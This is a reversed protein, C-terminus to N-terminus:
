FMNNRSCLPKLKREHVPDTAIGPFGPLGCTLRDRRQGSQPLRKVASGPGAPSLERQGSQLLIPRTSTVTSGVGLGPWGLVNGTPFSTDLPLDRRFGVAAAFGGGGGGGSSGGTGVAGGAGGGGWGAGRGVWRGGSPGPRATRIRSTRVAIATPAPTVQHTSLWTGLGSVWEGGGSGGEGAGFGWSEAGAGGGRATSSDSGVHILCSMSGSSPSRVSASRSRTWRPALTEASSRAPRPDPLGLMRRTVALTQPLIPAPTESRM